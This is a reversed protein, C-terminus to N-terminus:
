GNFVEIVYMVCTVCASLIGFLGMGMFFVHWAYKSLADVESLLKLDKQHAIESLVIDNLRRPGLTELANCLVMSHNNVDEYVDKAKYDYYERSIRIALKNPGYIHAKVENPTHETTTRAYNM